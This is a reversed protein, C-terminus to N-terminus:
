FIVELKNLVEFKLHGPSFTMFAMSLFIFAKLSSGSLHKSFICILLLCIKSKTRHCEEYKQRQETYLDHALIKLDM